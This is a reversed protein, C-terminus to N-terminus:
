FVSRVIISLGVGLLALLFVRRFLAEPLKHRLRQGLFMGVVTPLTALVSITGHEVTLLSQGGLSVGLAVTSALALMGMAQIFMDRHLGIAQLYPVGPLVFSGTMGTLLGNTAGLVPGAWGEWRRPISMTPHTLSILSYLVVLAGLMASLLSVEVRSLVIVGVWVTLMAAALFPWIRVLLVRTNDGVFAQWINTVLSPVLLLAMAPQLGITVTLLALSVTPLGLGVIGKVAGALLFTVAIFVLALPDFM